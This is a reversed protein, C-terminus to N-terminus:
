SVERAHGRASRLLSRLAVYVRFSPRAFRGYVFRSRLYYGDIRPIRHPDDPGGDLTAMQTTTAFRYHLRVASVVREDLYGYPYAFCQPRRHLRQELVLLPEELERQLEADSVRRLDPHTRSHAEIEWGDRHLREVQAWRMLPLTPVDPPQSPWRNDGGVYGTTLFLTAAVGADRLIPLAKEAVSTFGDDFTIAIRNPIGPDSLLASLQVIEHNSERIAGTLGALDEPSISGVSRSRSIDHLMLVARM